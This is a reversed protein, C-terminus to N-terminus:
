FNSGHIFATHYERWHSQRSKHKQLASFHIYFTIKAESISTPLACYQLASAVDELQWLIDIHLGCWSLLFVCNAAKSLYRTTPFRAGFAYYPLREADMPLSYCTASWIRSDDGPFTVSKQTGSQEATACTRAETNYRNLLNISPLPPVEWVKIIEEKCGDGQIEIRLCKV